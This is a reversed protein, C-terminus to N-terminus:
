DASASRRKDPNGRRRSLRLASGPEGTQPQRRQPAAGPQGRFPTICVSNSTALVVAARVKKGSEKEARRESV